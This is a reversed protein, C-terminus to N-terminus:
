KSGWHFGAKMSGFMAAAFLAIGAFWKIVRVFGRIDQYAQLMEEDKKERYEMRQKLLNLEVIMKSSMQNVDNNMSSLAGKNEALSKQIGEVREYLGAIQKRMENFDDKTCM